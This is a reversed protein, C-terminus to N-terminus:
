LEFSRACRSIHKQLTRRKAFLLDECRSGILPWSLMKLHGLRFQRSRFQCRVREGPIPLATPVAEQSSFPKRPLEHGNAEVTIPSCYQSAVLDCGKIKPRSNCNDEWTFPDNIMQSFTRRTEWKQSRKRFLLALKTASKKKCKFSM